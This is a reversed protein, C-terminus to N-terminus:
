VAGAAEERGAWWEIRERAEKDVTRRPLRELTRRSYISLERFDGFEYIVEMRLLHVEVDGPRERLLDDLLSAAYAINGLMLHTRALAPTLRDPDPHAAAAEELAERALELYYDRAAGDLFGSSAYDLYLQALAERAEFSDPSSILARQAALISRGIEDELRSLALSAFLRAEPSPDHLLGRLLRVTGAGGQRTLAEIAARKAEPDDEQLVDVVPEVEREDLLSVEVERARTVVDVPGQEPEVANRIGLAVGGRGRSRFSSLLFAAAVALMGLVPFVVLSLTWGILAWAVNDRGEKRSLLSLGFVGSALAHLAFALVLKLGSPNLILWGAAAEAPFSFFWLLRGFRSM